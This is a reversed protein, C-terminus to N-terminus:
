HVCHMIGHISPRKGLGCLEITRETSKMRPVHYENAFSLICVSEDIPNSLLAVVQQSNGRTIKRLNGCCFFCSSLRALPLTPFACFSAVKLMFIILSCESPSQVDQMLVYLVVSEYLVLMILECLVSGTM